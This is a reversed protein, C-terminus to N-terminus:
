KWALLQQHLDTNPPHDKLLADMTEVFMPACYQRGMSNWWTRTRETGLVFPVVQQYAAWTAQDLVGNQYQMWQHERTRMFTILFSWLRVKNEMTIEGEAFWDAVINPWETQMSLLHM